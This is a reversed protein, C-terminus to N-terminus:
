AVWIIQGGPKAAVAANDLAKQPQYMNMDKPYSGASVFAIDALTHIPTM